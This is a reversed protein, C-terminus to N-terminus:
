KSGSGAAGGIGLGARTRKLQWEAVLADLDTYYNQFQEKSKRLERIFGRLRGHYAIVSSGSSRLITEGDAYGTHVAIAMDEYAGLLRRTRDLHEKNGAILPYVDKEAVAETLLSDLMNKAAILDAENLIELIHYANRQRELLVGARLAIAALYASYVGSGGLVIAAAFEFVKRYNDGERIQSYGLTLALGILVIVAVSSVRVTVSKEWPSSASM